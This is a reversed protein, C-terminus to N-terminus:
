TERMVTRLERFGIPVIQEQELFDQLRNSRFYQHEFTRWYARDPIISDIEGSANPHLSFFTVTGAPLDRLMTEYLEAREAHLGQPHHGPTMLIQDFIPHGSAEMQTIRTAWDGLLDADLGLLSTFLNVDRLALVPVQYAVGLRLYGEVLEPMFAIGMHTDFHTFDLGAQQARAAQTQFELLAAEVQMAARAEPTRHYFYGEDDILGSGMERTSLPGWRYGSWESTLTLHVGLDLAPNRRAEALIEPAWPCPLMVSGCTVIGFEVLDLYAQNSGHCMGVDDAHFLVLRCNPSYGLKALLPNQM